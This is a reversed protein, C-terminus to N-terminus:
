RHLAESAGVACGPCESGSLLSPCQWVVALLAVASLTVVEPWLCPIFQHQQAASGATLM